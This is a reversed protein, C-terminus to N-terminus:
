RKGGEDVEDFDMILYEHGAVIQDDADAGIYDPGYSFYVLDPRGDNELDPFYVVLGDNSISVGVTNYRSSAWSEWTMGKDAVLTWKKTEESLLATRSMTFYFAKGMLVNQIDIINELAENVDGFQDDIYDDIEAKDEPTWYDTGRQPTYGNLEGSEYADYVEQVKTNQEDIAEDQLAFKAEIAADQAAFSEDVSEARGKIHEVLANFKTVVMEFPKDFMKKVDDATKKPGGYANFANPRDTSNAIKVSNAETESIKLDNYNEAM